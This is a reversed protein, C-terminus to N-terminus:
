GAANRVSAAYAEGSGRHKCDGCRPDTLSMDHRCETSMNHPIRKIGTFFEGFGGVYQRNPAYYFPKFEPRSHCGYHDGAVSKEHVPHDIVPM